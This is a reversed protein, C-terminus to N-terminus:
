PAEAPVVDEFWTVRPIGHQRALRLTRRDATLFPLDLADALAVYLADYLAFQYRNALDFAAEFLLDNAVPAALFHRIHAGGHGESYRKDRM